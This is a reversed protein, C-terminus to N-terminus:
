ALYKGRVCSRSKVRRRTSYAKTSASVSSHARVTSRRSQFELSHSRDDRRCFIRDTAVSTGYEGTAWLGPGTQHRRACFSGSCHHRPSGLLRPGATQVGRDAFCGEPGRRAFQCRVHAPHNAPQDDLLFFTLLIVGSFLTGFPVSSEAGGVSNFTGKPLEGLKEVGGTLSGDGLYTLGFYAIM